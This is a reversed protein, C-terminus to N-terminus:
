AKPFPIINDNDDFSIYWERMKTIYEEEDPSCEKGFAKLFMEKEMQFKENSDDIDAVERQIDYIKELNAVDKNYEAM